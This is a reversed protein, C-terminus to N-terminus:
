DHPTSDDTWSDARGANILQRGLDLLARGAAYEDGIEPVPDDHPNRQAATQSHLTNDGTDLVAHVKTVDGEEFIDLRLTWQKTRAPQTTTRENM